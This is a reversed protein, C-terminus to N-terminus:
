SDTDKSSNEPPAQRVFQGRVRPRQEALRKRSQYRVKRNFCRQKRKQRFKTLAAERQALKSQDVKGSANGNGSGSGSGSGSGNGSADGSGRKGGPGSDSEANMTGANAGSSSGNPGNSGYNSGSASGNVSYNGANGELLEGLVTSSGCHPIPEAMKKIRLKEHNSTLQEYHLPQIQHEQTSCMPPVKKITKTGDNDGLMVQMSSSTINETESSFPYNNTPCEDTKNKLAVPNNPTSVIDVHVSTGNSCHNPANSGSHSQINPTLESKKELDNKQSPSQVDVVKNHSGANYRSFASSESRRLVNREDNVAKDVDGVGRVRKLGQETSPLEKNDDAGNDNTERKKCFKNASESVTSEKVEQLKRISNNAQESYQSSDIKPASHQNVGILETAIQLSLNPQLDSNKLVPTDTAKELGTNEPPEKQERFENTATVSLLKSMSPKANPNIVQACTSDPHEPVENLHSVMRPSDVQDEVAHKTWSSQTGSGHDSGDGFNLAPSGSDEEDNSGSNNDSKEASKSKVSKQTQSQTGSESGSGSSSHCRRWMHQWLNKLENKRIPKLLFDAAGKSLCKFVLGVSDHSSMMIVPVNKRTKHSMIKCLLAIGSFCPMAVETLIIDIRNEIDELIKWAQIGNSAEVVEYSCKRLLAAVVHRTSDDNEVLLVRVSRVHLFREWRVSAGQSHQPQQVLRDIGNGELGHGGGNPRLQGDEPTGRNEGATGNQVIKRDINRLNQSEVEGEDSM